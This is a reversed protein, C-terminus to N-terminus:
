TFHRFPFLMAKFIQHCCKAPVESIQNLGGAFIIILMMTCLITTIGQDDGARRWVM